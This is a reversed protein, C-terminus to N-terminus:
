TKNVNFTPIVKEKREQHSRKKQEELLNEFQKEDFFTKHKRLVSCILELPIGETDYWFFVDKASVERGLSLKLFEEIMELQVQFKFNFGILEKEIVKKTLNEQYALKKYFISNSLVIKKHLVLLENVGIGLIYSLLAVKKLLKRLIYGRKKPGPLVGDSIAFISTRLHDAIVYLKWMEGRLGINNKSCCLKLWDISSKWVDTQFTNQVGQLVLAIRELGGGIDVCKKSLPLYKDGRHYFESFVINIIEIFSKSELDNLNFEEYGDTELFYYYIETNSGCPGDGMDWFNSSPPALIINKPFIGPQSRWITFTEFDSELVTVFLKQPNISLFESSTFFEWILPIIDKKFNGGISFCGLMEFLTQHYSKEDIREIDNTRIVNQCNVLNKAPTLDPNNFYKKLTAVGSNVWLLSPDGEPVLSSSEIFLYNKKQFFLIWNSRIYDVSNKKLTM